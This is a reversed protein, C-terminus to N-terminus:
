FNLRLALGGAMQNNGAVSPVSTFYPGIDAKVSARQGRIDRERLNKIKAVQVADCINWIYLGFLATVPLLLLSDDDGLSDSMLGFGTGLLAYGGLFLAGRGWEGAVCHGLGPFLASAIGCTLPSYPDGWQTYYGKTSYQYKYDRYRMERRTFLPIDDDYYIDTWDEYADRVYLNKIKAVKVADAINWIYMACLGALMSANRIHDGASPDRVVTQEDVYYNGFGPTYILSLLTGATMAETGLFFGLGRSFEGCACQGLGPFFFSAAGSLFPYYPDDERFDYDKANYLKSYDIYRMNTYLPYQGEKKEPEVSPKYTSKNAISIIEQGSVQLFGASLLLLLIVIRKM